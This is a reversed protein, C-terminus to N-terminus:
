GGGGLPFPDCRRHVGWAGVGLGGCVSSHPVPGTYTRITPLVPGTPLFPCKVRKTGKEGVKCEELQEKRRGMGEKQEHKKMQQNYFHDCQSQLKAKFACMYFVSDWVTGREFM